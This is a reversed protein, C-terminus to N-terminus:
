IYLDLMGLKVFSINCHRQDIVHIRAFRRLPLLCSTYRQQTLYHIRACDLAFFLSQQASIGGSNPTESSKLSFFRALSSSRRSVRFFRSKRDFNCMYDMSAYSICPTGSEGDLRCAIDKSWFLIRFYISLMLRNYFIICIESQHM